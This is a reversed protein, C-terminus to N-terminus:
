FLPSGFLFSVSFFITKLENDQSLPKGKQEDYSSTLYEMNLSFLQFLDAGVGFKVGGGDYQGGPRSEVRDYFFFSMWARLPFAPLSFGGFLGLANREVDTDIDNPSSNLIDLSFDLGGMIGKEFLFTRAGMGLGHASESVGSELWKGTGYGLYPELVIDFSFSQLCHLCFLFIILLKRM